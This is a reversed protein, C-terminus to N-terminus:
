RCAALAPSGDVEAEAAFADGTELLCLQLECAYEAWWRTQHRAMELEHRLTYEALPVGCVLQWREPLRWTLRDYAWISLTVLWGIGTRAAADHCWYILGNWRANLANITRM